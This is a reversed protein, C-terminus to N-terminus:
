AAERANTVGSNGIATTLGSQGQATTVGTRGRASFPEILDPPEVIVGFGTGVSIINALNLQGDGLAPLNGNAVSDVAPLLAAGTGLFILQGTGDALIRPLLSVAAGPIILAGQVTAIVPKLVLAGPGRIEVLGTTAVLVRRLVLAADGVAVIFFTGTADGQARQLALTGVGGPGAFWAGVAAAQANNLISESTGAFILQGTAATAVNNLLLAAPGRVDALGAADAQVNNLLSIVNGAFILQGTADAQVNNLLVDAAGAPILLGSAAAQANNLALAATGPFSEAGTATASIKRLLAASVGTPEVAEQQALWQVAKIGVTNVASGAVTLPVLAFGVTVWHASTTTTFAISGGNIAGGGSQDSTQVNISGDGGVTSSGTVAETWDGGSEGTMNGITADASAISGICVARRNLAGGVPTVTPAAMPSATGATSNVAEIPTAAFGNAATFRYIRAYALDNTTGGTCTVSVTQNAEGAGAIRWYLSTRANNSGGYPNGSFETWGSITTPGAGNSNDNRAVVHLLLLDGANVTSPKAPTIANTITADAVGTAQGTAIYAGMAGLVDASIGATGDFQVEVDALDTIDAPSWDLTVVQGDTATVDVETSVEPSAPSGAEYLTLKGKAATAPSGATCYLNAKFQQTGILTAGPTQFGLRAMTATTAVVPSWNNADPSSVDADDIDTLLLPPTQNTTSDQLNTAVLNSNAFFTQIEITAAAALVQVKNLTAVATGPFSEIGTAETQVGRLTLDATGVPVLLGSADAQVNNLTPAATGPFSEAGVAEAAVGRLTPVATGPFSEVGEAEAAVGRLAAAATGPFSEVGVAEATVSRLTAAADGTPAVAVPSYIWFPPRRYSPLRRTWPRRFVGTM